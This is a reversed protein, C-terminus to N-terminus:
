SLSVEASFTDQLGHGKPADHWVVPVVVAVRLMLTPQYRVLLELSSRRRQGSAAFLLEPQTPPMPLSPGQLAHATVEYMENLRQKQGWGGM